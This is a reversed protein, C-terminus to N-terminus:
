SSPWEQVVPPMAIGPPPIFRAVSDDAPAENRFVVATAPEGIQSLAVDLALGPLGDDLDLNLYVSSQRHRHWESVVEDAIALGDDRYRQIETIDAPPKGEAETLMVLAALQPGVAAFGAAKFVGPLYELMTALNAESQAADVVYHLAFGRRAVEDMVPQGTASLYDHVGPTWVFAGFFSKYIDDVMFFATTLLGGDDLGSVMTQVRNRLEECSRDRESGALAALREGGAVIAGSRYEWVHALTPFTWVTTAM